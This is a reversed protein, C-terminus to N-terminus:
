QGGNHKRQLSLICVEKLVFIGIGNLTWAHWYGLFDIVNIEGAIL